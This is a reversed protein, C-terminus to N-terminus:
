EEVQAECVAACGATILYDALMGVGWLLSALLVIVAIVRM